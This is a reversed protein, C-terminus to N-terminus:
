GGAEKVSARRLLKGRYAVGVFQVVVPQESKLDANARLPQHRNPDFSVTEGVSGEVTLGNDELTRVLRKAVALVNKAKVPKGETLLHAQTLLQSVPGAADSLLQEMEAQVSETMLAKANRRERELEGKLNAVIRKQEELELRLSQAERELALVQENDPPIPPTEPGRKFFAKLWDFM